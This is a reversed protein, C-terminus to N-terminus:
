VAMPLVYLLVAIYHCVSGALVFLHWVAHSFRFRKRVYFYVGVTYLLGSGLVGRRNGVQRGIFSIAAINTALPCPSIATLIGLWLASGLALWTM